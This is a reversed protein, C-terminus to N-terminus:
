FWSETTINDSTTKSDTENNWCEGNLWTLPNKRYKKDPTSAVYNSVTKFILEREKAKLNNWKTFCKKRDEKKNYLDWFREFEETDKDEEEEEETGNCLAPTVPPTVNCLTIKNQKERYAKQRLRGQERIKELGEENQHKGWNPIFIRNNKDIEIMGFESFTRLALVIINLKRNFLSSLMENTYAIDKNLHIFGGENTKGALTLLKIWVILISDGAPLSEILKIKENDFMSTTLKIWKVDNM